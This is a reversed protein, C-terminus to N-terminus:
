NASDIVKQPIKIVGVKDHRSFSRKTVLEQTSYKGYEKPELIISVEAQVLLFSDKHILFSVKINKAHLAELFWKMHEHEGSGAQSILGKVLEQLGEGTLDATLVYRNGRAKVNMDQARSRFLELQNEPHAFIELRELREDVMEEPYEHWGDGLNVYAEEGEVYLTQQVEEQGDYVKRNEYYMGFPEKNLDLKITSQSQREEKLEGIGDTIKNIATGEMSFSKMKQNADITKALLEDAAIAADADSGGCATIGFAAVVVLLAIACKRM